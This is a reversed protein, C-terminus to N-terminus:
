QLFSSRYGVNDVCLVRVSVCCDEKEGAPSAITSYTVEDPNPLFSSFLNVPIFPYQYFSCGSHKIENGGQYYPEVLCSSLIFLAVNLQINEKEM